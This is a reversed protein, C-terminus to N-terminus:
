KIRKGARNLNERPTYSDHASHDANFKMVAVWPHGTNWWFVTLDQNVFWQGKENPMWSATVTGDANLTITNKGDWEWKTNALRQRLNAVKTATAADDFEKQTAAIRQAEDLDNDKIAQKRAEDLAKIYDARAKELGKRYPEEVKARERKFDDLAKKASVSKFKPEDVKGHTSLSLCASVLVAFLIMRRM